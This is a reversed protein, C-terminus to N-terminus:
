EITLRTSNRDNGQALLAQVYATFRRELDDVTCPMTPSKLAAIIEAAGLTVGRLGRLAQNVSEVFGAPLTTEAPEDLALYDTIPKREAATM